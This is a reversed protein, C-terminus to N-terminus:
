LSGRRPLSLEKPSSTLSPDSKGLNLSRMRVLNSTESSSSPQWTTPQSHAPLLLYKGTLGGGLSRRRINNGEESLHRKLRLAPSLGPALEPNSSKRLAPPCLIHDLKEDECDDDDGQDPTEKGVEKNADEEVEPVRRFDSDDVEATM